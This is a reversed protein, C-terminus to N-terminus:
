RTAVTRLRQLVADAAAGGPEVVVRELIAAATKPGDVPDKELAAVIRELATVGVTLPRGFALQGPDITFVTTDLGTAGFPRDWHAAASVGSAGRLADDITTPNDTGSLSNQIWVRIGRDRITAALPGARYGYISSVVRPAATLAIWDDAPPDGIRRIGLPAAPDIQLGQSEGMKIAPYDGQLTIATEYGLIPGFGVTSGPAVNARVWDSASRVAEAKTTDAVSASRVLTVGAVALAVLIVAAAIGLPGNRTVREDSPRRVLIWRIVLLAVGIAVLLGLVVVARRLSGHGVVSATLIAGAALCGAGFIALTLRDPGHLLRRGIHLWGAAGLAALIALQAIYHRPIEGVTVVLLVLPLGCVSAIILDDVSAWDFRTGSTDASPADATGARSARAARIREVTAILGGVLGIALIPGLDPLWTALYYRVEAPSMFAASTGSRTRAFFVTLAVAWAITGIWGLLVPGPGSRRGLVDASAPERARGVVLGAIGVILLILAIPALTWAPTGLRYVAGAEQAYILFWWSTGVAAVLMAGSALRIITRTPVGRALGALFPAPAFPLAIEKVLFAVAFVAGAAVAWRMSGRRVATLGIVLYALSLVAAPLDLGLGRGLSLFYPFGVVAAAGVVGALPWIRWGLYATIAVISCASAIAILHAWAVPDVGFAAHPGVVLMPWLPSHFPFFGGFVTTPGHGAFVNAGIGLYKADDETMFRAPSVLLLVALVLVAIVVAVILPRAHQSTAPDTM